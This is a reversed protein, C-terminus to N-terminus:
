ASNNEEHGISDFFYGRVPQLILIRLLRIPAFPSKFRRQANAGSTSDIKRRRIILTTKRCCRGLRSTISLALSKRNSPSKNAVAPRWSGGHGSHRRKQHMLPRSASTAFDVAKLQEDAHATEKPAITAIWDSFTL